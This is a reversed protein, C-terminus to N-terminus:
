SYVLCRPVAIVIGDHLHISGTAKGHGCCCANTFCGIGNLANVIPALCMDVPKDGWREEGTHSLDATIRVRCTITERCGHQANTIETVVM